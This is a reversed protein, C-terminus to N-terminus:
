RHRLRPKPLPVASSALDGLQHREVGILEDAAEQQM